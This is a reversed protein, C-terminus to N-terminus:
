CALQSFSTLESILFLRDRYIFLSTILSSVNVGLASRKIDTCMYWCVRSCEISVVNRGYLDECTHSMTWAFPFSGCHGGFRLLQNLIHISVIGQKQADYM